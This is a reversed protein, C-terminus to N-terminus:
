AQIFPGTLTEDLVTESSPPTFLSVVIMAAASLGLAYFSFHFPLPGLNAFIGAGVIGIGMSAIAGERTARRWYLGALLPVAFASLMVGIGLWILPALLLPNLAFYLTIIAALLTTVQSVRLVEADSAKPRLVNRYIDWGFMSGVTLMLRDTTSMVAALVIVAFFAWVVVSPSVYQVAYVFISDSPNAVNPLSFANETVMVRGAFGVFKILFMVLGYVVFTILPIWKFYRAEKVALVNNIIHPACALGITLMIVFSVLFEPTYPAIAVASASVQGAAYLNPDFFPMVFNPDLTALMENVHTIGGAKIIVLPAILLVGLVLLSGQIFTTWAVAYLGGIVTYMTVIVAAIVLAYVFPIGLLWALVIAIATYQGALYILSVIIGAVASLTRMTRPSEYRHAFYDQVTLYGKKQSVKQIKVGFFIICFSIALPVAMQEWIGPWGSRFGFGAVGLISMGSCVAGVMLLTFMWFGLTRGACIFDDCNKIKRSAYGGIVVLVIFYVLVVAIEIPEAL